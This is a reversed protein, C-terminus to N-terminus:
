RQSVIYFGGFVGMAFWWVGLGYLAIKFIKNEIVTIESDPQFDDPLYQILIANEYSSISGKAGIKRLSKRIANSYSGGGYDLSKFNGYNKGKRIHTKDKICNSNGCVLWASIPTSSTWDRSVIPYSYYYTTVTSESSDRSSKTTRSKSHDGMYEKLILGEEKLYILEKAGPDPPQNLDLESIGASRYFSIENWFTFILSFVFLNLLLYILNISYILGPSSYHNDKYYYLYIAVFVILTIPFLLLIPIRNKLLNTINFYAFSILTGALGM